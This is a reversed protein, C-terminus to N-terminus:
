SGEGKGWGVRVSRQNNTAPQQSSGGIGGDQLDQGFYGFGRVIASQRGRKRPLRRCDSDAAIM